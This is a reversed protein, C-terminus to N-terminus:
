LSSITSPPNFVVRSFVLVWWRWFRHCQVIFFRRLVTSILYPRFFPYVTIGCILFKGCNGTLLYYWYTHVYPLSSCDLCVMSPLGNFATWESCEDSLMQSLVILSFCEICHIWPLANLTSCEVCLMWPLANLASWEFCVMWPLDNLASWELCIM